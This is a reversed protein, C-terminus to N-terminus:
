LKIQYLPFESLNVTRELCLISATCWSLQRSILKRRNEPILTM